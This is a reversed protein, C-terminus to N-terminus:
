GHGVDMGKGEPHRLTHGFVGGAVLVTFKNNIIILVTESLWQKLEQCQSRIM